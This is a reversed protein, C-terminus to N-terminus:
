CGEDLGTIRIVKGDVELLIEGPVSLIGGLQQEALRELLARYEPSGFEIMQDPPSKERDVVRADVWGNGRKYYTRDCVQQVTTVAVRQMEANWYANTPNACGASVQATANLSQNVAGQGSRTQVARSQLNLSAAKVQAGADSLDVGETALFATYETLIGFERSLRVIEDTLEKMRPDMGAPPSGPDVPGVTGMEAGLQQVADVLTGIKRTAWLRPVFGHQTSAKDLGLEFDFVRERGRYNGTLRFRLPETGHYRGLVVIQEGDFVDPLEDPMRESVRAPASQGADAPVSLNPSALVPGALKRFVQGVKVEVDEAPLVFTPTGRTTFALKQLLPTNVDFGVGFSFIRRKHVNSKEAAKRIALESTEGVTALGDTLFLLIPLTGAAPPSQLAEILADHINTGSVATLADIFKTAAARSEANVVVSEASFPQVADNYSILRFHEGDSLGALVQRAAAKAQEIKEGAMSGSRDIVLTVDRHISKADKDEGAAPLGALLLFYGEGPNAGPYAFLSATVADRKELLCSLRLAGPQRQAAKPIRIESVTPTERRVDIEHSPSYVGVIPRPMELRVTVEWPVDYLM